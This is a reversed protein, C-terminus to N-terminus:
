EAVGEGCGVENWDTIHCGPTTVEIRNSKVTINYIYQSGGEFSVPVDHAYFYEKEGLTVKIFNIGEKFSQPAIFVTFTSGNAHPRVSDGNDTGTLNILEITVWEISEIYEGARLNVVINATRHYDSEDNGCSVLSYIGALLIAMIFSWRINELLRQPSNDKEM